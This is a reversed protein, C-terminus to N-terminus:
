GSPGSNARTSKGKAKEKNSYSYSICVGSLEYLKLIKSKAICSHASRQYDLLLNSFTQRMMQAHKNNYFSFFIKTLQQQLLSPKFCHLSCWWWDVNHFHSRVETAREFNNTKKKIFIVTVVKNKRGSLLELTLFRQLGQAQPLPRGWPNTTKLCRPSSSWREATTRSFGPAPRSRSPQSPLRSPRRGRQRCGPSWGLLLRRPWATSGGPSVILALSWNGSRRGQRRSGCHM